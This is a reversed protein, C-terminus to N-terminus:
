RQGGLRALKALEDVRENYVEGNHGRVWHWTVTHQDVLPSLLTWLDRNQVPKKDTTYWGRNRWRPLWETMGLRLYQSDTHLDIECPRKLARLAELAATLEMRNNTTDQAAGTITKEEGGDAILLAAWGGPGPNPHCSGDTYITVHQM